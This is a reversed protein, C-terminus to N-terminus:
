TTDTDCIVEYINHKDYNVIWILLYEHSVHIYVGYAPTASPIEVKGRKIIPHGVAICIYVFLLFFFRYM